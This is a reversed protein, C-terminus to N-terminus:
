PARHDDPRATRHGVDRRVRQRHARNRGFATAISGEVAQTINTAGKDVGGARIRGERRARTGRHWVSTPGNVSRVCIEDDHRIVWITRRSSLGNDRRLSAVRLEQTNELRTLEDSTWGM